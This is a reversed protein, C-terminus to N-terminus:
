DGLTMMRDVGERRGYLAVSQRLLVSVNGTAVTASAPNYLFIYLGAGDAPGTGEYEANGDYAVYPLSGHNDAQQDLEGGKGQGLIRAVNCFFVQRTKETANLTGFKVGPDTIVDEYNFNANVVEDHTFIAWCLPVTSTNTIVVEASAARVEYYKYLIGLYQAPFSPQSDATAPDVDSLRNIIFYNYTRNGASIDGTNYNRSWKMVTNLRDPLARYFTATNIPHKKHYSRHAGAKVRGKGAIRKRKKQVLSMFDGYMESATRKIGSYVPYPDGIASM